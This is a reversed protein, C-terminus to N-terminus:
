SFGGVIIRDAPTGTKIEKRILNHIADKSKDLGPFSMKSGLIKPEFSLKDYWGHMKMGDLNTIPREAAIPLIFETEPLKKKFRKM